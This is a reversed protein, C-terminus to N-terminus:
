IAISIGYKKNILEANKLSPEKQLKQIMKKPGKKLIGRKNILNAPIRIILGDKIITVDSSYETRMFSRMYVRKGHRSFRSM